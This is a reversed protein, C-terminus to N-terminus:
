SGPGMAAASAIQAATVEYVIARGVDDVTASPRQLSGLRRSMTLM